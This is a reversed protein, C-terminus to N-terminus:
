KKKSGAGGKGGKKAKKGSGSTAASEGEYEATRDASYKAWAAEFEALDEMWLDGSSKAELVKKVVEKKEVEEELETVASAKIRDIRMRMVYEYAKINDPEERLSLAPVGVTKLSAVIEEDSRKAIVIKEDLVGKIFLLRGHLEELEAALAALM